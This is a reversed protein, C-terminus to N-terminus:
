FVAPDDTKPLVLNITYSLNLDFDRLDRAKEDVPPVQEKHGKEDKVLKVDFDALRKLAEFTQCTLQVVRDNSERGTIEVVLGKFKEKDLNAAYENREFAERYAKRLAEAMAAGSTASNRYKKYLETPSGDSNLLGMKKGLPIFQRYNGGRFGLKTELFDHTFRDPTKAEKIKELVKVISGPQNVYPLKSAM